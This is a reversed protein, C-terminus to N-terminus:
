PLPKAMINKFYVKSKPDHCQLAFTGSSLKRRSDARETYDVLKKGNVKIIVRKGKVIIHETFWRGDKAPAVSVDQLGYLSGTKRPDGHYTNNIQVELGKRPWGAEQYATHFYLGSNAGPMTMVDAKFEFNRFNANQIPGVYFLHSREGDAAIMGDHVIFSDKNESPKWGELSKGDFLSQWGKEKCFDDDKLGSECGSFILCSLLLSLVSKKM